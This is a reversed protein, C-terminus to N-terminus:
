VQYVRYVIALTQRAHSYTARLLNVIDQDPCAHSSPIQRGALPCSAKLYDIANLLELANLLEM